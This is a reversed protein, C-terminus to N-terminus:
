DITFVVNNKGAASTSRQHTAIVPIASRPDAVQPPSTSTPNPDITQEPSTSRPSVATGGDDSEEQLNARQMKEALTEMGM